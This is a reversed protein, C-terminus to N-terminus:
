HAGLARQLGLTSAIAAASGTAVNRLPMATVHVGDGYAATRFGGDNRLASAGSLAWSPIDQATPDMQLQHRQARTQEVQDGVSKGVSSGVATGLLKVPTQLKEVLGASLGLRGMNQAAVEGFHAGLGGGLVSGAISPILLDFGVKPPMARETIGQAAQGVGLDFATSRLGGSLKSGVGPAVRGLVGRAAPGAFAGALLGALAAKESGLKGVTRDWMSPPKQSKALAYGGLGGAAVGAGLGALAPNARIFQGAGGTTPRAALTPASLATSGSSNVHPMPTGGPRRLVRAAGGEAAGVAGQLGRGAASWANSLVGPM